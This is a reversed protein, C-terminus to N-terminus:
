HHGAAGLNSPLCSHGIGLGMLNFLYRRYQRGMSAHRTIRDDGRAASSRTLDILPYGGANFLTSKIFTFIQPACPEIGVGMRGSSILSFIIEAINPIELM